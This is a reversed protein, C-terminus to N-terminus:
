FFHVCVQGVWLRLSNIHEQIQEPTFLETMSVGKIKPKGSKSVTIDTSDNAENKVEPATESTEKDIPMIEQKVHTKIENSGGPAVNHRATPVNGDTGYGIKAPKQLPRPDIKVDMKLQGVKNNQDPLESHTEQLILGANSPMSVEREATSPSVPQMKLRKPVSPQSDFIEDSVLDIDMIDGEVGNMIRQATNQQAIKRPEPPKQKSALEASRQLLKKANSCVPCQLDVCAKYHETVM